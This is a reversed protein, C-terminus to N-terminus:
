RTEDSELSRPRNKFYHYIIVALCYLNVILVMIGLINVLWHDRMYAIWASCDGLLKSIGIMILKWDHILIKHHAYLAWLIAMELDILFSSLLMGYITYKFVFYFGFSSLIFVIVSVVKPIITKKCVFLYVAFIGADLCFWLLYFWFFTALSSNEIQRILANLEWALNFSVAISPIASVKKQIGYWIVFVYAITWFYVLLYDFIM